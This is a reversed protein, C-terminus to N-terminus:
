LAKPIRAAVATNMNMTTPPSIPPSIQSSSITIGMVKNTPVAIAKQNIRTDTGPITPPIPNSFYLDQALYRTSETSPRSLTGM